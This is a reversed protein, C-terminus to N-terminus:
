PRNLYIKLQGTSKQSTLLVQYDGAGLIVDLQSINDSTSLGEGHLLMIPDGDIKKLTVDLYAANLNQVRLLFGVREPQTLTFSAIPEMGLDKSSLDIDKILAFGEPIRSQERCITINLSGGVILLASFAVLAAVYQGHFRPVEMKLVASLAAGPQAIRKVTIVWGLAYCGAATLTVALPTVQSNILFQTVDDSPPACRFLHLVPLAMWALLTNVVILASVGKFIQVLPATQRPLALMTITWLSFPLAAGSLNIWARQGPTFDGRLGVHAGMDLFNINFDTITGGLGLAMLAHGAEHLFTYTLLSGLIIALLIIFARLTVIFKNPM